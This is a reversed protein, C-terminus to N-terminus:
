PSRCCRRTPLSSCCRPLRLSIYHRSVTSTGPVGPRACSNGRTCCVQTSKLLSATARAFCQCRPWHRCFLCRQPSSCPATQCTAPVLPMDRLADLPELTRARALYPVVEAVVHSLAPASRAAIATRLKALSEFYDGQYVAEVHIEDQSAHFRKVIELLVERNRGGLSYWLRVKLRGAADRTSRTCGGSAFAAVATGAIAARRGLKM